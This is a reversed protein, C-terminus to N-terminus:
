FGHEIRGFVQEAFRYVTAAMFPATVSLVVLITIIKPIFTLTIEQIQTLAQLLAIAVGVIMAALISPTSAVVVTWLALRLIDLAEVENM